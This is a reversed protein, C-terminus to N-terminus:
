QSASRSRWYRVGFVLGLLGVIVLLGTWSGDGLLTIASALGSAESSAVTVTLPIKVGSGAQFKSDAMLRGVVSITTLWQGETDAKVKVLVDKEEHSELTFSSPAVTVLNELDDPYVEFLTVDRSPNAVKLRVVSENGSTAQIKLEAPAVSVGVAGATAPAATFILGILSILGIRSIMKM